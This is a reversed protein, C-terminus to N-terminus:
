KMEVYDADDKSKGARAKQAEVREKAGEVAQAETKLKKEREVIEAQDAKAKELNVVRQKAVSPTFRVPQGDEGMLITPLRTEDLKYVAYTKPITDVATQADSVIMADDVPFGHKKTLTKLQGRLQDSELGTWREPAYAMMKRDGNISSPSFTRQVERLALTSAEDINGGTLTYYEQELAAYSASLAPTMVPKNDTMPLWNYWPNLGSDANMASQLRDGSTSDIQSLSQRYEAKLEPTVKANKRALEVADAVPMGARDLSAVSSYIAQQERGIGDLTQPAERELVRFTNAMQVVSRPTGAIAYRRMDAKMQPPMINTKVALNTGYQLLEQRAQQQEAPSLSLSSYQMSRTEYANEVAQKHIPNKPDLPEGNTMANSVLAQMNALEQLSEQHSDWMKHLQTRKTADIDGRFYSKEINAPDGEPQGRSVALELNSASEARQHENSALEEATSTEHARKLWRHVSARQEEGFEGVYNPSDYMEVFMGLEAPDGNKMAREVNSVEHAVTVDSRMETKESETFMTAENIIGLSTPLDGAEALSITEAVTQTRQEKNMAYVHAVSFETQKRAKYDSWQENFKRREFYGMDSNDYNGQISAVDTEFEKVSSLSPPRTKYDATLEEVERAAKTFKVMGKDYEIGKAITGVDLALNGAKQLASAQANAVSLPGSIDRRGLTQVPTDYNINPLKM